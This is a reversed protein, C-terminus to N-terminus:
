PFSLLLQPRPTVILVTLQRQPRPTVTLAPLEEWPRPTVILATVCVGAPRPQEQVVM